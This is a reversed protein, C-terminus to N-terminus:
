RWVVVIQACKTRRMSSNPSSEPRANQYWRAGPKPDSDEIGANLSTTSGTRTRARRRLYIMKVVAFDFSFLLTGRVCQVPVAFM